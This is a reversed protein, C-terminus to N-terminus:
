EFQVVAQISLQPIKLLETHLAGVPTTVVGIGPLSPTVQFQLVM